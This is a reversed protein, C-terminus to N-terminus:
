SCVSTAGHPALILLLSSNVVCAQLLVYCASISLYYM